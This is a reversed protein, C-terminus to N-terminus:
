AASVMDQSIRWLDCLYLETRDPIMALFMEDPSERGHTIWVGRISVEYFDVDVECIDVSRGTDGSVAAEFEQFNIEDVSILFSAM